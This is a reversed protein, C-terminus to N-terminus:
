SSQSSPQTNFYKQLLVEVSIYIPVAILVGAVGALRAGIAISVLTVVPNVGVNAQMIKPVIIYNELQQILTALAAVAFGIVPSIGFGIIVAPIAAVIPGLYPVIELLGALISLPLAFPIGLLSLGIYNVVGIVLMLVMEARTWDGIRKEVLLISANIERQREEGFFSTIQAYLKSKESLFYFAFVLVTIVDVINSFISVTTSAIKAPVAGLQTILDTTASGSFLSLIGLRELFGPFNVLFSKTQDVLVPVLSAISLSVAGIMVIYIIVVALSRPIGRQSLRTVYPDFITTLFVAMLLQLILGKILFLLWLFGILFFTFIITRHSIEIKRPM